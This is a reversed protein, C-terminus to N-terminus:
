TTAFTLEFYALAAPEDWTSGPAPEYSGNDLINYVINIVVAVPSPGLYPMLGDAANLLAAVAAREFDTYPVSGAGTGDLVQSLKQTRGTGFVDNFRVNPGDYPAPWDTVDRSAWTEPGDGTMCVSVDTPDSANGSAMGSPACVNGWAPRSVVTMLVPAAALAGQLFRRRSGGTRSPNVATTQNNDRADSTSLVQQNHDPIENNHKM